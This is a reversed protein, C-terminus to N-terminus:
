KLEEMKLTNELVKIDTEIDFIENEMLQVFQKDFAEDLITLARETQAYVRQVEVSKSKTETFRGYKSMIEASTDLYYSLFRRAINIKNPNHQLYDVINSGTEYLQLGSERIQDHNGKLAAGKIVELDRHAEILIARLEEGDRLSEVNVSGLKYVPKTLLSVGVYTGVALVATILVQWQLIFFTVGFVAIGSAISLFLQKTEKM